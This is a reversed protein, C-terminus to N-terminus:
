AAVPPIGQRVSVLVEFQEMADWLSVVLGKPLISKSGISGEKDISDTNVAAIFSRIAITVVSGAGSMM